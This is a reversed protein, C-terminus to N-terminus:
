SVECWLLLLGRGTSSPKGQLIMLLSLAITTVSVLFTIVMLAVLLRNLVVDTTPVAKDADKRGRTSGSSSEQHMLDAIESNVDYAAKRKILKTQLDKGTNNNTDRGPQGKSALTAMIDIKIDIQRTGTGLVNRPEFCQKILNLNM